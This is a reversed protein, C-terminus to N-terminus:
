DITGFYTNILKNSEEMKLIQSKMDLGYAEARHFSHESWELQKFKSINLQSTMALNALYKIPASGWCFFTFWDPVIHVYNEFIVLEFFLVSKGKEDKLINPLKPFTWSYSTNQLKKPCYDKFLVIKDNNHLIINKYTEHSPPIFVYENEYLEYDSSVIIESLAMLFEQAAPVDKIKESEGMIAILGDQASLDRDILKIIDKKLFDTM